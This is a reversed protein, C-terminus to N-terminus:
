NVKYKSYLDEPVFYLDGRARTCAVYLKSKTQPNLSHLNGDTYNQFTSKNLVICVDHYNNEGKSKGWNESFCPYKRHNQYFLKVISNSNFITNATDQDTIHHIATEDNRHSEISISLQDRIFNCVTPSCRHSKLLTTNDPSFGAKKLKTIYKTFDSYIKSNTPGDKSTDFTHQYFDGVLTINIDADSLACLLNLDNGGFDQVEDVLMVDIYKELRKLVDSLSSQEVLKALRNSYLYGKDSMYHAQNKKFKTHPPPFDWSIGKAGVQDSLLPKFCFSNLFSFYTMLKINSPICGFIQIIRQRLNAYNNNTHTIILFRAEDDLKEILLRTKGSGAVALIVQKDM